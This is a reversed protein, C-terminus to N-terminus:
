HFALRQRACIQLFGGDGTNIRWYKFTSGWNGEFILEVKM